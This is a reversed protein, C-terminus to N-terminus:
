WNIANGQCSQWINRKELDSRINLISLNHRQPTKPPFGLASNINETIPCVHGFSPNRSHGPTSPQELHRPQGPSNNLNVRTDPRLLFNSPLEHQRTHSKTFTCTSHWEGAYTKPHSHTFNMSCCTWKFPSLVSLPWCFIIEWNAIDKEILPSWPVGKKPFIVFDSFTLILWHRIEELILPPFICWCLILFFFFVHSLTTVTQKNLIYQYSM